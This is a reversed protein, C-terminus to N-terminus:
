NIRVLQDKMSPTINQIDIIKLSPETSNQSTASVPKLTETIGESKLRYMAGTIPDVIVMGILGGFVINGFYWGNITCKVEFVMTEYGEKSIVIKYKEPGFYSSGSKLRTAMPTRGNYVEVGKKNTIVVSAASPKTMVSFPWRSKSVISACNTFLLISFILSALVVKTM